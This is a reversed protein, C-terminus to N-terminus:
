SLTKLANVKSSSGAIYGDFVEDLINVFEFSGFYQQADELKEELSLMNIM